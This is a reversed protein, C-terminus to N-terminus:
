HGTKGPTSRVLNVFKDQLTKAWPPQPWNWGVLVGIVLGILLTM